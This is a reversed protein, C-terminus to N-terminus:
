NNLKGETTIYSLLFYNFLWKNEVLERLLLSVFIKGELQFIINWKPEPLRNKFNTSLDFKKPSM